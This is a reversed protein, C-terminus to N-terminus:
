EPWFVLLPMLPFLLLKLTSNGSIIFFNNFDQKFIQMQSIKQNLAAMNWAHGKM